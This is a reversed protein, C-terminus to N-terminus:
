YVPAGHELKGGRTRADTNVPVRRNHNEEIEKNGRDHREVVLVVVGGVKRRRHVLCVCLGM